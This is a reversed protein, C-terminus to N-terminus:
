SDIEVESQSITNNDWRKKAAKKAIDSREEPTLKEARAKGGKKGGKSSNIQRETLEEAEAEGIAQQFVNFATQTFDKRPNTKKTM